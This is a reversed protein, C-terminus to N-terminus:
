EDCKDKQSMFETLDASHVETPKEKRKTSEKKSTNKNPSLIPKLQM